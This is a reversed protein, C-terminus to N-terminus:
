NKVFELLKEHRKIQFKNKLGYCDLADYIHHLSEGYYPIMLKGESQLLFHSKLLTMDLERYSNMNIFFCSEKM